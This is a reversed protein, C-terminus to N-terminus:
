QKMASPAQRVTEKEEEPFYKFILNLSHPLIFKTLPPIDFRTTKNLRVRYKSSKNRDSVSGTVDM